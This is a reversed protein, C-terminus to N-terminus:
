DGFGATELGSCTKACWLSWLKLTLFLRAFIYLCPRVDMVYYRYAFIACDHFRQMVAVCVVGLGDWYDGYWVSVLGDHAAIRIAVEILHQVIKDIPDLILIDPNHVSELVFPVLLAILLVLHVKSAFNLYMTIHPFTHQSKLQINPDFPFLKQM